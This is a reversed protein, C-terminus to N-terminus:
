TNHINQGILLSDSEVLRGESEIMAAEEIEKKCKCKYRALNQRGIYSWSYEPDPKSTKHVRKRHKFCM